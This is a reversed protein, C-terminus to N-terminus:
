LFNEMVVRHELRYKKTNSDYNVLTYGNCDRTKGGKWRPSKERRLSESIKKKWEESFKLRKKGIKILSIKNKTLESHKKGLMGKPHNIKQMLCLKELHLRQKESKPM